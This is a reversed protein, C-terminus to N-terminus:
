KLTDNIKLREFLHNIKKVKTQENFNNFKNVIWRFPLNNEILFILNFALILKM